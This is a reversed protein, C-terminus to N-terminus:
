LTPHKRSVIAHHNVFPKRARVGKHDCAIYRRYGLYLVTM